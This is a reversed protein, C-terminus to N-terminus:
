RIKKRKFIELNSKIEKEGPTRIREQNALKIRKTIEGNVNKQIDCKEIAFEMGINQNYIKIIQILNELEKENKGFLKIDNIFM